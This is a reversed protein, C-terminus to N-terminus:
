GESGFFSELLGAQGALLSLGEPTPRSCAVAGIEEAVRSLAPSFYIKVDCHLGNSEHRLFAAMEAADGAGRIEALVRREVRELQDLALTADGLNKCYWTVTGRSPENSPSDAPEDM